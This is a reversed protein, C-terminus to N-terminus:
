LFNVFIFRKYFLVRWFSETFFTSKFFEVFIVQFCTYSGRKLLTEPRVGTVKNFFLSWCLYKWTFKLFMKKVSCRWAIVEKRLKDWLRMECRFKIYKNLAFRRKNSFDVFGLIKSDKWKAFVNKVRQQSHMKYVLVYSCLYM